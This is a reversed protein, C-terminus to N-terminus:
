PTYVREIPHEHSFKVGAGCEQCHGSYTVKVVGDEIGYFEYDERFRYNCDSEDHKGCFPCSSWRDASM